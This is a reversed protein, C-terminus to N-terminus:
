RPVQGMTRQQEGQALSLGLKAQLLSAKASSVKAAAETTASSLVENQELQRDAVRAAETRAQLLEVTVEVLSQM